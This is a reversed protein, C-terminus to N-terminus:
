SNNKIIDMTMVFAIARQKATARCLCNTPESMFCVKALNDCYLDWDKGWVCGDFKVFIKEAEHMANLDDIYCPLIARYGDSGYGALGTSRLEAPSKGTPVFGTLEGNEEVVCTWNAFEAVKICLEKDTMDSIHEYDTMLLQM